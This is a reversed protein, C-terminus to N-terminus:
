KERWGAWKFLEVWMRREFAGNRLLVPYSYSEQQWMHFYVEARKLHEESRCTKTM